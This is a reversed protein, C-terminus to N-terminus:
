HLPAPPMQHMTHQYGMVPHLPRRISVVAAIGLGLLTIDRFWEWWIKTNSKHREEHIVERLFVLTEGVVENLAKQEKLTEQAAKVMTEMLASSARIQTAAVDQQKELFRLMVSHDATETERAVNEGGVIKDVVNGAADAVVAAVGVAAGLARGGLTKKPREEEEEPKPRPIMAGSFDPMKEAPM